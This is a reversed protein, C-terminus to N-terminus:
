GTRRRVPAFRATHAAYESSIRLLSYDNKRAQPMVTGRLSATIRCRMHALALSSRQPRGLGHPPDVGDEVDLAADVAQGGPLAEGHPQRM